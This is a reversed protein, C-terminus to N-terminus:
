NSEGAMREGLSGNLKTERCCTKMHMLTFSAGKAGGVAAGNYNILISQLLYM